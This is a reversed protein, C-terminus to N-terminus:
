VGLARTALMVGFLLGRVAVFGVAIGFGAVILWFIIRLGAKIYSAICDAFEGASTGGAQFLPSQNPPNQQAM